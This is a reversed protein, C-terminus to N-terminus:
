KVALSLLNHILTVQVFVVSSHQAICVEALLRVLKGQSCIQGGALCQHSFYPPTSKTIISINVMVLIHCSLGNRASPRQSQCAHKQYPTLIFVEKHKDTM